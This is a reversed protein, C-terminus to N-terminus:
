TVINNDTFMELVVEIQVINVNCSSVFCPEETLSNWHKQSIYKLINVSFVFITKYFWGVRQFDLGSLVYLSHIFASKLTFSFYGRLSYAYQICCKVSTPVFNLRNWDIIVTNVWLKHM